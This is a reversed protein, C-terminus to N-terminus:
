GSVTEWAVLVREAMREASFLRARAGGEVRPDPAALHPALAAAWAREDWPGCHCGAIGALALRAIGVDTSLVPVDCALAELAALGFGEYESPVVVADAANVHWPVEAPPVGGLAILEAGAAAALARARDARKLARGPDAPLLLYRGDPDLGLRARAEARPLPRFRELDVGCPLVAVRRRRGAGPIRRALTASVTAPLDLRGLRLLTRSVPGTAPHHLDTGHLTVLRPAGPVALAPIASLGYHAHVVDFTHERYRARASRAARLYNLGGARYHFVEVEAGLRRLAEVQDHVFSGLVPNGASPYMNTVVLARVPVRVSSPGGSRLPWGSVSISCNERKETQLRAGRSRLM